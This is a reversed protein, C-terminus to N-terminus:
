GGGGSSPVSSSALRGTCCLFRPVSGLYETTQPHRSAMLRRLRTFNPQGSCDHKLGHCRCEAYSACRSCFIIPGVQWLKHGAGPPRAFHRALRNYAHLAGFAGRCRERRRHEPLIQLGGERSQRSKTGCVICQWASHKWEWTHGGQAAGRLPLKATQSPGKRRARVPHAM